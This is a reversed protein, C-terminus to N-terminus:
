FKTGDRLNATWCNAEVYVEDKGGDTKPGVKIKGVGVKIHM